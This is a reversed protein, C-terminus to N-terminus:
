LGLDVDEKEKKPTKELGSMADKYQLLTMQSLESIGYRDLVAKEGVGKKKMCDKLSALKNRDIREQVPEGQDIQKPTPKSQNKYGSATEDKRKTGSNDMTDADKVDDICFLGNLAYKRAYSSTAGTVQSSDMGKKSEEERAYATNSISNSSECDWLTATAKVYVRGCIEVIEDSVTLATKTAKTCAKAAELIDECSRYKYKGFSNYQKKPVSLTHQIQALKDTINNAM